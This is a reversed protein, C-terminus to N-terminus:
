VADVYSANTLGANRGLRSLQMKLVQNSKVIFTIHKFGSSKYLSMVHVLEDYMDQTLVQMETCDVELTYEGANIAKTKALYDDLFVKADEKGMRGNVSINMVKKAVNVQIGTKQM